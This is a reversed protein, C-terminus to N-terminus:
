ARAVSPPPLLIRTSYREWRTAPPFPDKEDFNSARVVYLSDFLGDDARKGFIYWGDAARHILIKRGDYSVDQGTSDIKIFIYSPQQGHFTVQDNRYMGNVVDEGAGNVYLAPSARNSMCDAVDVGNIFVTQNVTSNIHLNGHEDQFLAAKTAASDSVACLTMLLLLTAGTNEYKRDAAMARSSSQQASLIFSPLCLSCCCCCLLVLLLLLCCCCFQQANAASSEGSALGCVRGCM